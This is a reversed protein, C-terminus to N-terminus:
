LNVNLHAFDLLHERTTSNCKHLGCYVYRPCVRALLWEPHCSYSVAALIQISIRILVATLPLCYLRVKPASGSWPHGQYSAITLIQSSIRILSPTLPLSCDYDPPQNIGLGVLIAKTPAFLWLWPAAGPKHGGPHVQHVLQATATTMILPSRRTETYWYLLIWDTGM